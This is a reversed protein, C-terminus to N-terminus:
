RRPLPGRTASFRRLARILERILQVSFAPGFQDPIQERTLETNFARVADGFEGGFNAAIQHWVRNHQQVLDGSYPSGPPMPDRSLEGKLWDDIRNALAAAEKRLHKDVREERSPFFAAVSASSAVVTALILLVVGIRFWVNSMLAPKPDLSAMEENGLWMLAAGAAAIVGAAGVLVGLHARLRGLTAAAWRM